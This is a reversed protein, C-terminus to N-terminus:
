NKSCVFKAFVDKVDEGNELIEFGYVSQVHGGEFLGQQVSCDFGFEPLRVRNFSPM